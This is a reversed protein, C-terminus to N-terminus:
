RNLAIEILADAAIADGSANIIIPNVDLSILRYRQDLTYDAIVRSADIMAPYGTSDVTLGITQMANELGREVLPLLLTSHQNVKEVDVGGHGIMM